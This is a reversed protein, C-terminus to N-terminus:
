QAISKTDLDESLGLYTDRQYRQYFYEHSYLVKICAATDLIAYCQSTLPKEGALSCAENKELHDLVSLFGTQQVRM